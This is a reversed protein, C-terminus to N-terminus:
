FLVFIFLDFLICYLIICYLYLIALQIFFSMVVHHGITLLFPQFSFDESVGEFTGMLYAASGRQIAVAVRQILYPFSKGEGSVERLRRGLTKLFKLTDSGIMGTTEVAEPQFIHIPVLGSYKSKKREEVLAAIAGAETSASPLYSPAFAYTCTADWVLLKGQEWPVMTIGDPRKGYSRYMGAPELHSPVKAASLARHIIDNIASHHYHCGESCKCILGYTGFADVESDCNHPKCLVASLRLGM